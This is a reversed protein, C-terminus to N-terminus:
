VGGGRSAPLRFSGSDHTQVFLKMTPRLRFRMPAYSLRALASRKPRLLRMNSDHRGSEFFGRSVRDKGPNKRTRIVDSDDTMNDRKSRFRSLIDSEPAVTPAVLSEETAGPIRLTPLLEVAAAQDLLRDDTYTNMTLKIDSHRMVSQATRPSVGAASLHTGTSHRMAHLHLHKNSEDVKPIGAAELDRNLIRLMGTPM